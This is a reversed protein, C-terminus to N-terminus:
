QKMAAGQHDTGNISTSFSSSTLVDTTSDDAFNQFILTISCELGHQAGLLRHKAASLTSCKWGVHKQVESQFRAQAPRPLLGLDMTYSSITTNM